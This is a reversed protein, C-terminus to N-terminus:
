GRAVKPSPAPAQCCTPGDILADDGFTGALTMAGVQVWPADRLCTLSLDVTWRRPQNSFAARTDSCKQGGGAVRVHPRGRKGVGVEVVLDLKSTHVSWFVDPVPSDAPAARTGLRLKLSSSRFDVRFGVIDETRNTPAPTVPSCTPCPPTSTDNVDHTKDRHQFTEAGAPATGLGLVVLATAVALATTRWM